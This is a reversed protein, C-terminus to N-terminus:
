RMGYIHKIAPKSTCGRKYLEFEVLEMITAYYESAFLDPKNRLYYNYSKNAEKFEYCLESISYDKVAKEIREIRELQTPTDVGLYNECLDIFNDVTNLM